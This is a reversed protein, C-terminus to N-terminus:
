VNDCQSATSTKVAEIEVDTVLKQAEKIGHMIMALDIDTGFVLAM